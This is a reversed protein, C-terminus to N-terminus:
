TPRRPGVVRHAHAVGILAPRISAVRGECQATVLPHNRGESRTWDHSRRSDSDKTSVFTPPVVRRTSRGDGHAGALARQDVDLVSNATADMAVGHAFIECGGVLDNARDAPSGHIQQVCNPACKTFVQPHEFALWAAKRYGLRHAPARVVRPSLRIRRAEGGATRRRSASDTSFRGRELGSTPGPTLDGETYGKRKRPSPPEAALGRPAPNCASAL